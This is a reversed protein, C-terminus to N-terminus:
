ANRKEGRQIEWTDEQNKITGEETEPVNERLFLANDPSFPLPYTSTKIILNIILPIVTLREM